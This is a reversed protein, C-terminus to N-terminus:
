SVVLEATHRAIMWEENTPLVLVDTRSDATTIRTADAANAAADLSIGLWGLRTCVRERV